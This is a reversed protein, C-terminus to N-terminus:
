YFNSQFSFFVFNKNRFYFIILSLICIFYKFIRNRINVRIIPKIIKISKDLKLSSDYSLFYIKNKFKKCLHNSILELNKEVGGGEISPNFIILKKIDM